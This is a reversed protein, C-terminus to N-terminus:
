ARLRAVVDISGNNAFVIARELALLRTVTALGTALRPALRALRSLTFAVTVYQGTARVALVDFGTASLLRRISRPSYYYVHEPVKLSVWRPGSVRALLSRINPTMVLLRGGPTLRARLADLFAEPDVVHELCDLMVAADFTEGPPLADISGLRVDLGQRCAEGVAWPNVDVGIARAIGARAAQRLFYGPGCGIEVLSAVPGHRLLRDLKARFTRALQPADGAYDAYGVRDTGAFYDHSGYLAALQEESPLPWLQGLGCAACYVLAHAGLQYRHAQPGGCLLCGSSM